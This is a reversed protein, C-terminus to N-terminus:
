LISLSQMMESFEEEAYHSLIRSTPLRGPRIIYNNEYATYKMLLVDPHYSRPKELGELGM